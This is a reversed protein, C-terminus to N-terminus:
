DPLNFKTRKSSGRTHQASIYSGQLCEVQVSFMVTLDVNVDCLKCTTVALDHFTDGDEAHHKQWSCKDTYTM